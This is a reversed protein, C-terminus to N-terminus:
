GCPPGCQGGASTRRCDRRHSGWGHGRRGGRPWSRARGPGVDLRECGGGPPWGARGPHDPDAADRRAFGVTNSLPGDVASFQGPVRVLSRGASFWRVTIAEAGAAPITEFPRQPLERFVSVFNEVADLQGLSPRFGGVLLVQADAMAVGRALYERSGAGLSDVPTVLWHTTERQPADDTLSPIPLPTQTPRWHVLTARGVFEHDVETDRQWELYPGQRGPYRCGALCLPRAMILGDIRSFAALDLGMGALSALRSTQRPLGPLMTRQVSPADALRSGALYLSAEPRVARIEGVFQRYLEQLQGSRWRVWDPHPGAPGMTPSDPYDRRFRAVTAADYGWQIDHLVAFSDPDLDIRIGALSPHHGYRLMISRVVDRM